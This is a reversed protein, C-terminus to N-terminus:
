QKRQPSKPISDERYRDIPNVRRGGKLSDARNISDIEAPGKYMPNVFSSDPPQRTKKPLPVTDRKQKEQAFASMCLMLSLVSIIIKKM